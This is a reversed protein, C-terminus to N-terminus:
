TRDHKNKGKIKLIALCVVKRIAQDWEDDKIYTIQVTQKQWGLTHDAMPELMCEVVTHGIKMSVSCKYERIALMLELMQKTDIEPQWKSKCGMCGDDVWIEQYSSSGPEWNDMAPHNMRPDDRIRKGCFKALELLENTSLKNTM